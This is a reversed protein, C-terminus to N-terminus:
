GDLRWLTTVGTSGLLIFIKYCSDIEDVQRKEHAADLLFNTQMLEDHQGRCNNKPQCM